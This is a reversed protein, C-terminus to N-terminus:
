TYIKVTFERKYLSWRHRALYMKKLQKKFFFFVNIKLLDTLMATHTSEM